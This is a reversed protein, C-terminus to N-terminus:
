SPIRDALFASGPLCLTRKYLSETINQEVAKYDQFHPLLHMPRWAPRAFIKHEICQQLCRDLDQFNEDEFVLVNLWNNWKCNAPATVIRFGDFNAFSKQYLESLAQKKELFESLRNLQAFGLAANLNPMRYNYGVGDHIFEYPHPVKATSGNHRIRRAKEADPTLVMGGGGSTIIKNGNFSLVAYDGYLGVHRNHYFSGLAEAADEILILNHRDCVKRLKELESPIGFCHMAILAKIPKFSACNLPYDNVTPLSSLYEDILEANLGFDSEQVDFFMPEARCYKITNVTAAFTLSPVIVHEGEEIGADMLCLHLASTGSSCAIAHKAGTFELIGNEFKEIHTGATSVWGSEVCKAVQEIECAGLCPEHLQAGDPFLRVLEDVVIKALDAM